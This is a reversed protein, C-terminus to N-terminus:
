IVPRKRGAVLVAVVYGVILGVLMGFAFIMWAFTSM